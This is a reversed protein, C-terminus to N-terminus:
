IDEVAKIKVDLVLDGTIMEAIPEGGISLGAGDHHDGTVEVHVGRQTYEASIVDGSCGGPLDTVFVPIDSTSELEDIEREGKGSGFDVPGDLSALDGELPEDLRGGLALDMHCVATFNGAHKVAPELSNLVGFPLAAPLETVALHGHDEEREQEGALISHAAAQDIGELVQGIMGFNEGLNALLLVADTSVAVVGHGDLKQIVHGVEVGNDLFREPDLGRYEHHNDDRWKAICTLHSM